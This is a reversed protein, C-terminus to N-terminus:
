LRGGYRRKRSHFDDIAKKLEDRDFDPWLVDTIYIESYSIEWILFNSIRFEGSTRILLDPDPIDPAYLYNKFVEENINAIKIKGGIVDDLLAKTADVIEARGGYNLAITLTAKKNNKTKEVANLLKKRVPFPIKGIRGIIRIKVDRNNINDINKTISSGLLSMLYNVEDKPRKWNETSFAYLTLYKINFEESAELLKMVAKEGARHGEVRKLGRKEAWRGNGDMIIAIHDLKKRNEVM